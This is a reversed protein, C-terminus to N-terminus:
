DDHLDLPKNFIRGYYNFLNIRANELGESNTMTGGTDQVAIAFKNLTDCTDRAMAKAGAIYAAEVAYEEQGGEDLYWDFWRKFEKKLTKNLM